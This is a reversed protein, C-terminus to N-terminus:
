LVSIGQRELMNLLSIIPLGILTNPDKGELKEFLAIGLGESKFSGACNLPQERNVYNKIQKETLTRFHVHFEECLTENQMTTTNLLSLGVYFTIIKGSALTLQEIAKEVTLPKGMINENIVCVQDSGIILHNPTTINCSHTKLEALRTVLAKPSEGIRPTEDCNPTRTEFSLMLKKLLSQRFPSTSALILKPQM